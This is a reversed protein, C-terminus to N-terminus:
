WRWGDMFSSLNTRVDSPLLEKPVLAALHELNVAASWTRISGDKGGTVVREWSAGFSVALVESDHAWHTCLLGSGSGASNWMRLTQDESGTVVCTGDEPNFRACTVIGEHGSLTKLLKGEELDWVKATKDRSGSVIRLGDESCAVSHIPGHHGRLVHIPEGTSPSWIRVVGDTSGTIMKLSIPSFTVARVISDHLLPSCLQEGTATTWVRATKDSSGTIVCSFDPSFAISYIWGKHARLDSVREGKKVVWIEGVNDHESGTALLKANRNFAVCRVNGGACDFTAFPVDEDIKWLLAKGQTTGIVFESCDRNFAVSIVRYGTPINKGDSAKVLRGDDWRISLNQSFRVDPDSNVSGETHIGNGNKPSIEEVAKEHKKVPARAQPRSSKKYDVARSSKENDNSSSACGM